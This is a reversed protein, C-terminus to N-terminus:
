AYYAVGTIITTLGASASNWFSTSSLILFSAFDSFSSICKKISPRLSPLSSTSILYIFLSVILFCCLINMYLKFVMGLSAVIIQASLYVQSVFNTGYM